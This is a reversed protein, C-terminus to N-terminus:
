KKFKYEIIRVGTLEQYDIFGKKLYDKIIYLAMDEMKKAEQKTAFEHKFTKRISDSKKEGALFNIVLVYHEYPIGLWDGKIHDIKSSLYRDSLKM